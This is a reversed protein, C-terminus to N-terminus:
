LPVDLSFISTLQRLIKLCSIEKLSTCEAFTGYYMSSKIETVSDPIIVREVKSRYFASKDIRVVKSKGIMEPIEVVTDNGLYKTITVEGNEATFKYIKKWDAVSLKKLGLAKDLKNEEFTDIKEKNFRRAKEQLVLASIKVAKKKGANALLTEFDDPNFKQACERLYGVMAVDDDSNYIIELLREKRLKVYRKYCPLMKQAPVFEQRLYGMLGRITWLMSFFKTPCVINQLNNCGDFASYSITTVSDPISIETLAKCYYFAGEAIETVGDPIVVNGGAGTYEKLVGNEIIFDSM